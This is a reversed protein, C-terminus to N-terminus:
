IAGALHLTVFYRGDAVEWRPLQGHWFGITDPNRAMVNARGYTKLVDASGLRGPTGGSPAYASDPASLRGAAAGSAAAVALGCVAPVGTATGALNARRIALRSRHRVM